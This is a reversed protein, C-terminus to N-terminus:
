VRRRSTKKTTNGIKNENLTEVEKIYPEPVHTQLYHVRCDALGREKWNGVSYYGCTEHPCAIRYYTIKKKM